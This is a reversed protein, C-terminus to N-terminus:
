KQSNRVETLQSLMRLYCVPLFLSRVGQTGAGISPMGKSM